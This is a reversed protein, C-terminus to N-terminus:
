IISFAYILFSAFLLDRERYQTASSIRCVISFCSFWSSCSDRAHQRLTHCVLSFLSSIWYVLVLSAVTLVCVQGMRQHPSETPEPPSRAMQRQMDISGVPSRRACGSYICVNNIPSSGYHLHETMCLIHIFIYQYRFNVVNESSLFAKRETTQETSSSTTHWDTTHWFRSRYMKKAIAYEVNFVVVPALTHMIREDSCMWGRNTTRIWRLGHM